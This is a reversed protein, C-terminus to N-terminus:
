LRGNALTGDDAVEVVARGWVKHGEVDALAQPISEIGRYSGDFVVPRVKGSDVMDMFEKWIERTEHPLRRSQEGFRYGIVSAANLLLRNMQIKEMVGQLGAFGVLVIRGAYKLCKLSKGVVGVADYVAEVGEGNTMELVQKEWNDDAYCVTRVQDGEGLSRVVDAKREDKGVLAIVKAGLALAIQVACIGLGGTAGAVLMTEGGKLKAIKVVAGYSVAGSAGVACADRNRWGAPTKRVGDAKTADISIYEAFTGGGGGFVRDGTRLGSSSPASVIVGAFETGLIFPPKMHRRNNQHKGQSYLVDVHTIPCHTTRIIIKDDSPAPHPLTSTRIDTPRPIFETIHIAQM